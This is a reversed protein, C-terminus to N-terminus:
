KKINKKRRRKFRKKIHYIFINIGGGEQTINELESNEEEEENEICEKNEKVIPPEEKIIHSIIKKLKIKDIKLKNQTYKLKKKMKSTIKISFKKSKIVKDKENKDDIKSDKIVNKKHSKIPKKAM